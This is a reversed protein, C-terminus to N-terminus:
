HPPRAHTHLRYTCFILGYWWDRVPAYVSMLRAHIDHVALPAGADLDAQPLVPFHAHADRHHLCLVRRIHDRFDHQPVVLGRPPAVRRVLQLPYMPLYLPSYAQYEAINLSAAANVIRSVNYAVGTNDYSKRSVMSCISPSPSSRAAVDPVASVYLM